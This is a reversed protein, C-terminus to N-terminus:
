VTVRVDRKCKNIFVYILVASLYLIGSLVYPIIPLALFADYIIDNSVLMLPIALIIGMSMYEEKATYGKFRKLKDRYTLEQNIDETTSRFIENPDGGNYFIVELNKHFVDLATFGFQQFDELDIQGDEIISEIARRIPKQIVEDVKDHTFRLAQLVNSGTKLSAVMITVYKNIGDLETQEMEMQKHIINTAYFLFFAGIIGILVSVFVNETLFWLYVGGIATYLLLFILVVWGQFLQKTVKLLESM